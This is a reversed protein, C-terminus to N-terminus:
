RNLYEPEVAGYRAVLGLAACENSRRVLFFQACAFIVGHGDHEAVVNGM